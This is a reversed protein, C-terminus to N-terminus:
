PNPESPDELLAKNKMIVIPSVVTLQSRSGSAAYGAASTFTMNVQKINIQPSTPATTPVTVATGTLDFYGVNLSSLNTLLTVTASGAQRQLIGLTPGLDWNCSYIVTGSGPTNLTMLTGDTQNGPNQASITTASSVDQTFYYLAQRSRSELSEQNAQRTLGRGLFIYASLVGAFVFSSIFTVMM